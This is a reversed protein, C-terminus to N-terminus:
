TRPVEIRKSYQYSNKRIFDESITTPGRLANLANDSIVTISVEVATIRGNIAEAPDPAPTLEMRDGFIRATSNAEQTLVFPINRMITPDGQSAPPEAFEIHLILTFQFINECVFNAAEAIDDQYLSFASKLENQGLLPPKGDSTGAFTENPDVLKRYLVFTEFNAGETDIPDKFRLSYGVTSIDGGKDESGDGIQGDYRDTAATFFIIDASNPSPNGPPGDTNTSEAFLWEFTNGSRTVMSEFDRAMMDTMAQAQRAARLESRSRNWTELAISTITILITVIITTIAM